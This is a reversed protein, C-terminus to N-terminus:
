LAPPNPHGKYPYWFIVPPFLSLGKDQLPNPRLARGSPCRSCFQSCPLSYGGMSRAKYNELLLYPRGLRRSCLWNWDLVGISLCVRYQLSTSFIGQCVVWLTSTHTGADPLMLQLCYGVGDAGTPTPCVSAPEHRQPPHFGVAVLLLGLRRM